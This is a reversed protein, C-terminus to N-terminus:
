GNKKEKKKRNKSEQIDGSLEAGLDALDFGGFLLEGTCGTTAFTTGGGLDIPIGESLDIPRQKM